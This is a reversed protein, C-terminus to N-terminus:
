KKGFANGISKATANQSGSDGSKPIPKKAPATGQGLGMLNKLRSVLGEEAQAGTQQLKKKREEEEKKRKEEEQEASTKGGSSKVYSDQITPAANGVPSAPKKGYIDM